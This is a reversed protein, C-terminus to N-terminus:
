EFDASCRLLVIENFLDPSGQFDAWLPALGEGWHLQGELESGDDRDGFLVTLGMRQDGRLETLGLDRAPISVEYTRRTDLDRMAQETFQMPTSTPARWRFGQAELPATTAGRFAWGYLFDDSNDFSTGGNQEVDFALIACDGRYINFGTWTNALVDDTVEAAFHLHTSTWLFAFRASIDAPGESDLGGIPNREYDGDAAIEVFHAHAWETLVGDVVIPQGAERAVTQSSGEPM